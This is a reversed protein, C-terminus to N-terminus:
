GLLKPAVGNLAFYQTVGSTSKTKSVYGLPISTNVTGEQGYLVYSNGGADAGFGIVFYPSIQVSTLAGTWAPITPATPVVIPTGLVVPPAANNQFYLVQWAQASAETLATLAAVFVMLQKM